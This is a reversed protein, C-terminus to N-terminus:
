ARHSNATPTGLSFIRLGDGGTALALGLTQGWPGTAPSSGTLIATNVKTSTMALVTGRRTRGAMLSIM